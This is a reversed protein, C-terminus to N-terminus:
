RRQPLQLFSPREQNGASQPALASPMKGQLMAAYAPTVSAAVAQVRAAAEAYRQSQVSLVEMTDAAQVAVDATAEAEVAVNQLHAIAIDANARFMEGRVKFSNVTPAVSEQLARAQITLEREEEHTYLRINGLNGLLKQITTSLINNM